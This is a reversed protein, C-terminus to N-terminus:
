RHRLRRDPADDLHPQPVDDPYPGRTFPYRGPLGIDDFPTDAIDAPTYTRKVPFGGFTHFQPKKEKQRALFGAVENAEWDKVQAELAQQEASAPKANM